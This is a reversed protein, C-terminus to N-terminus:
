EAGIEIELLEGYQRLADDRLTPLHASPWFGEAPQYEKLVERALTLKHVETPGDAIGLSYGALLM